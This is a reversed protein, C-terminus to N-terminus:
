RSHGGCVNWAQGTVFSSLDSALFTIVAAVEEPKGIRKLASNKTYAKIAQEGALQGIPTDILGPTVANINLGYIGYELALSYTLAILAGKSAAYHSAGLGSGVKGATSSVSIIKGYRRKVMHPLVRKICNFSGTFNVAMMRELDAQKLELFPVSEWIGAANVLIDIYSFQNLISTFVSDLMELNSVDAEYSRCHVGKENIKKEITRLADADVDLLALKGGLEAFMAATAEGIGSAAGTIVAVKNDLRLSPL